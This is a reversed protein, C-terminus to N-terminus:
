EIHHFQGLSKCLYHDSRIVPYQKHAASRHMRRSAAMCPRNSPEIYVNMKRHVGARAGLLSCMGWPSINAHKM